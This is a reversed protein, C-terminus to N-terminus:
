LIIDRVPMSTREPAIETERYPSAQMALILDQGTRDNKLRRFEEVSIGVVEDRGYVTVRQSGDSRVRRVLESFRAKADQLVWHGSAKQPTEPPQVPGSSSIRTM